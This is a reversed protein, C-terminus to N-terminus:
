RLVGEREHRAPYPVAGVADALDGAIRQWTRHTMHANAAALAVAQPAQTAAEAYRYGTGLAGLRRMHATGSEGGWRVGGLWTSSDASDAPLGCLWENPTFGLLHVWLHPYQRHREWATVAMHKRRTADGDALNAWCIRDYQGALEDYYDWGDQLPHYIPIPRLGEAETAARLQRKGETGGLDLEAYGWLRDEYKKCLRVYRDWLEPFGPVQEAPTAWAELLTIGTTRAHASALSFIGSDFFVRVGADLMREVMAEKQPSTITSLALLVHSHRQGGEEMWGDGAIFYCGRDTPDFTGGGTGKM